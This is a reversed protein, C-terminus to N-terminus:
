CPHQTVPPFNGAHDGQVGGRITGPPRQCGADGTDQGASRGPRRHGGFREHLQALLICLCQKLLLAFVGLLVSPMAVKFLRSTDRTVSRGTGDTSFADDGETCTEEGGEEEAEACVSKVDMFVEHNFMSPGMWETGIWVWGRQVMKLKRAEHLVKIAFEEPAHLAIIRWQEHEGGTKMEQLKERIMAVDDDLYVVQKHELHQQHQDALENNAEATWKNFETAADVGYEDNTTLFWMGEWEHHHVFDVISKTVM